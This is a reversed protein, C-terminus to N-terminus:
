TKKFGFSIQFAKENNYISFRERKQYNPINKLWRTIYSLDKM